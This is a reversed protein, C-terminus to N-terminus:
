GRIEMLDRMRIKTGDEMLLVGRQRDLERVKGTIEVYKGGSKVPDPVFYKVKVEPYEEPNALIEQLKYNMEELADESLEKREETVRLTEAIQAELGRLAAFPKFQAARKILPMRPHRYSPEKHPLDMIDAYDDEEIPKIVRKSGEM